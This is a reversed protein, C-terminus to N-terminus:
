RWRRGSYGYGAGYSWSNGSYPAPYSLTGAWYRASFTNAQNFPQAPGRLDYIPTSGSWAPVYVSTPAVPAAAVLPAPAYPTTAYQMPNYLSPVYQTPVLPAPVYQTPVIPTTVIPSTAYGLYSRTPYSYSPALYNSGLYRSFEQAGTQGTGLFGFTAAAVAAVLVTRM